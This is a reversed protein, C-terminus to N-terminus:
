RRRKPRTRRAAANGRSSSPRPAMGATAEQLAAVAAEVHVAFNRARADDAWRESANKFIAIGTEAILAAIPAALGRKRLIAAIATALRSLKILEREGLEADAAIVTRRKRAHGRRSEFWPALAEFAGIVVTLPAVSTPAASITEVILSELAASGSFLVERKDTFYRFFTRETLGARAAIDEVTTRAYGREEFLEMAAQELRGRADPEWRGMTRDYGIHNCFSVDSPLTIDADSM